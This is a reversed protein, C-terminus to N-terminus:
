RIGDNPERVIHPTILVLVEYREMRESTRRFLGGLLPLGGLVPVQTTVVVPQNRILGGILMTQGDPTMVNTAAQTIDKNPLVFGGKLDVSGVSLEPHVEMRILGDSSIFPRLRLQTGTDLFAVNQQGASEAASRGVYGQRRGIQIEARQKNLVMLRPNAVVSVNGERKLAELLAHPDADLFGIKLGAVAPPEAASDTAARAATCRCLRDFNIGCADTDGLKVSLIMADIAVQMPPVDVKAVVKDIEALASERDRVVFVENGAFRDGGVGSDGVGSDGAAIGAEAPTSVSAAGQPSLLPKVLASLEAAQVYNTRYTRVAIPDRTQDSIEFDRATGVFLFKGEHRCVYGTSKLIADLAGATDVGSLTASVKGEVNRSALINLNGQEGLLGLVERIDENYIHIRLKGDGDNQVAVPSKPPPAPTPSEVPLQSKSPTEAAKTRTESGSSTSVAQQAYSPGPMALAPGPSPLNVPVDIKESKEPEAANIVAQPRAALPPIAVNSDERPEALTAVCVAIGVGTAAFLGLWALRSFTNM